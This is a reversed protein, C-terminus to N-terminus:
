RDKDSTISGGFRPLGSDQWVRRGVGLHPAPARRRVSRFTPRPRRSRGTPRGRGSGRRRRTRRDSTSPPPPRPRDRTRSWTRAARRPPSGDGRNGRDRLRGERGTDEGGRRRHDGGRGGRHRHGRGRNRHGGRHGRALHDPGPGGGRLRRRGLRDGRGRSELGNAEQPGLAHRCADTDRDEKDGHEGQDESVWELGTARLAHQIGGVRGGSRGGADGRLRGRVFGRIGPATRDGRRRVLRRRGVRGTLWGASGSGCRPGCRRRRQVRARRGHWETRSRGRGRRRWRRRGRWLRGRRRRRRGVGVGVGAGVGGGVGVGAGVGVGVGAQWVTGFM